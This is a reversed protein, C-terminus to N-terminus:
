RQLFNIVSISPLGETTIPILERQHSQSEAGKPIWYGNRLALSARQTLDTTKGPSQPKIRGVSSNM